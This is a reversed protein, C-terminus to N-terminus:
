WLWPAPPAAGVLSLIFWIAWIIVGVAFLFIAVNALVVGAAIAAGALGLRTLMKKILGIEEDFDDDFQNDERKKRIQRKAAELDKDRM